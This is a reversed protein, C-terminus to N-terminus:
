AEKSRTARSFVDAIVEELPPEEVSVDEVSHQSLLSALKEAVVNRDIRLKVKPPLVELIEGFPTLDPPMQNETFALTVIKHGSFRDLIGALSGDYEIQGHAIVVVRECLAAVDKM